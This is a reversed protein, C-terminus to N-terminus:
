GALTRGMPISDEAVVALGMLAAIGAGPVVHASMPAAAQEAVIRYDARCHSRRQYGIQYEVLAVAVPPAALSHDIHEARDIRGATGAVM